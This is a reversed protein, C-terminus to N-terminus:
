AHIRSRAARVYAEVADTQRSIREMREPRQLLDKLHHPLVPEVGCASRVADPFKAPHATGLCVVPTGGHTRSAKQGAAVGIATHPDLLEGTLTHISRMVGMTEKDDLRTAEFLARVREVTHSPPSCAGQERFQQMLTRVTGADRDCLDFLLRELNSSIQIDMSPSITPVVGQISLVGTDVFRTLIDNRNSGIVLREIPLGMRQAVYGAFVNGFNGTPVSFVVARDPAALRLAAWFYYVVQAMIRAWNISNVAALGVDQRFSPSAFLAKVIDQCDDFTGDVALCHVNRSTVTTMQCRQVDSVRGDPFLIFIEISDRDRCAEIAASGTDGSTAGVVTITQGRKGLVTDFLHGLMQLAHDKFALTPGHFLELLWLDTDLQKLPAIAQHTFPAYAARVLPRLDAETLSGTTFLSLIHVALDEWSLGRMARIDTPSLTPWTEPVYLGGDEALGSLLVDDFGLVPAQGRTSVYKM